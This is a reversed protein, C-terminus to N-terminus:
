CLWARMGTIVGTPAMPPIRKSSFVLSFVDPDNNAEVWRSFSIQFNGRTLDSFLTAEELPRVELAVGVKKWQEQLVARVLRFPGSGVPHRAFDAGVDAPVIGVASKELNWLFSSVPENLRFIVTGADPAEIGRIMRFAGSKPSKNAPNMMFEITAKVDRSTVERGDHLRVGARLHFVYTLADPTEWSEALDGHLNMQADCEVLGSYILGAIRQSQADTGFRADLNVPNSEIVFVVDSGDWARKRGCGCVILFVFPLVLSKPTRRSAAAKVTSGGEDVSNGELRV